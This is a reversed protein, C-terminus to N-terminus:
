NVVVRLNEVGTRSEIRIVYVGKQWTSADIELHSQDNMVSTVLRGSMDFISFIKHYKDQNSTLRFFGSSPNPNAKWGTNLDPALTLNSMQDLTYQRFFRWILVSANIDKNTVGTNFFAGPWTHGGGIIKYHEVTSGQDGGGYFYHEATCGDTTNINPVATFVPTAACNNLDVWKSVVNPTSVFSLLPNGDYPVVADANGHIEMVPVPRTPSCANFNAQTMSGTVSAIAAIKDSLECALSYSMFGGNSMGTSYIRQPDINYLTKLTDILNSLFAVDDVTSTGGISNWFGEGQADLTGNPHVILFKATDAIARFDGYFEQELANSTYGHLNLVLPVAVNGSYGAHKYLRYNRTLGGSQITGLVTQAIGINASISMLFGIIFLNRM